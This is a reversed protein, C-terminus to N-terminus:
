QAVVDVSILSGGVERFTYGLQSFRKASNAKASISHGMVHCVQWPAM